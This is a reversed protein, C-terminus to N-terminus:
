RRCDSTRAGSQRGSGADSGARYASASAASIFSRKAAVRPRARTSKVLWSIILEAAACLVAAVFTMTFSFRNRRFLEKVFPRRLAKAEKKNM